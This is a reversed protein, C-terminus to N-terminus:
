DISAIAFSEPVRLPETLAIRDGGGQKYQHHIDEIRHDFKRLLIAHKIGKTSASDPVLQRHEGIIHYQHYFM